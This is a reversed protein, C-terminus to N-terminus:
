GMSCKGWQTLMDMRQTKIEIGARCIPKNTDNKWIGYIHM